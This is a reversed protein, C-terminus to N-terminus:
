TIVVQRPDKVVLVIGYNRDNGDKKLLEHAKNLYDLMIKDTSTEDWDERGQGTPHQLRWYHSLEHAVVIGVSRDNPDIIPADAFYKVEEAPLRRLTDPDPYSQGSELPPRPSLGVNFDHDLDLSQIEPVFGMTPVASITLFNLEAPRPGTALFIVASDPLGDPHGQPLFYGDTGYDIGFKRCEAETLSALAKLKFRDHLHLDHNSDIAQQLEQMLYQRLDIQNEQNKGFATDILSRISDYHPQNFYEYKLTADDILVILLKNQGDPQHDALLGGPEFMFTRFLLDVKPSGIITIGRAQLETPTLTEPPIDVIPIKEANPKNISKDTDVRICVIDQGNIQRNNVEDPDITQISQAFPAFDDPNFFGTRGGADQWRTPLRTTGDLWVKVGEQDFILFESQHIKEPSLPRPKDSKTPDVQNNQDSKLMSGLALTGAVGLMMRLFNRRSIGPKPTQPLKSEPNNIQSRDQDESKVM